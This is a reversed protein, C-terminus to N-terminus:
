AQIIKLVEEAVDKKSKTADVIHDTLTKQIMGHREFEPIVVELEYEEDYDDGLRKARRQAMLSIPLDLYIKKDFMSALDENTLILSGEVLIIKKPKLTYDQPVEGSRWVFTKNQVEEGTRLKKLHDYILDFNYNGPLEWNKFKGKMPFNEPSKLYDDQRIHEFDDGFVNALYGALTTKGAGSPGAIGIIKMFLFDCM